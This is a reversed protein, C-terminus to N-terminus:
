QVWIIAGYCLVSPVPLVCSMFYVRFGHLKLSPWLLVRISQKLVPYLSPLSNKPVGLCVIEGLFFAIDWLQVAITWASLRILMIYGKVIMDSDKFLGLRATIIGGLYRLIRKVAKWYSDLPAHMYQCVKNVSLAIDPRTYMGYQLAGVVSKYLHPDSFPVGNYASLQTSSTM